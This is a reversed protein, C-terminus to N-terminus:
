LNARLVLLALQTRSRTAANAPPRDLSKGIQQARRRDSPSRETFIKFSSIKAPMPEPDTRPQPPASARPSLASQEDTSSVLAPTEEAAAKDRTCRVKAPTVAAAVVAGVEPCPTNAAVMM